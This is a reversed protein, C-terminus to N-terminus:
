RNWPMKALLYSMFCYGSAGAFTLGCGVFFPVFIWFPHVTFALTFGGIILVGATLMVQQIIPIRAGSGRTALGEKKWASIGGEVNIVHVGKALLVECAKKSRAGSGCTVYVRGYQKLRDVAGVVDDLPINEAEPIAEGKYEFSERVDLLIEDHDDDHLDEYLKKPPITEMDDTYIM